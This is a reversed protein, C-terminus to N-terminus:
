STALAAKLAKATEPGVKGDCLQLNKQKQFALVAAATNKGYIGDAVDTQGPAPRIPFDLLPLLLQVAEIQKQGALAGAGDKMMPSTVRLIPTGTIPFNDPRFSADFADRGAKRVDARAKQLAKRANKVAESDGNSEARELRAKALAARKEVMNLKDRAKKREARAAKSAKAIRKADRAGTQFLNQFFEGLASFFGGFNDETQVAYALTAPDDAGMRAARRHFHRILAQRGPTVGKYSALYSDETFAEPPTAVLDDAADSADSEEERRALEARAARRVIKKRLPDRAIRQLKKTPISKMRALLAAVRGSAGFDVYQDLTAEEAADMEVQLDEASAVSDAAAGMRAKHRRLPPVVHHLRARRAAEIKKRNALRASTLARGVRSACEAGFVSDLDAGYLDSAAHVFELTSADEAGMADEGNLTGSSSYLQSLLKNMLDERQSASLGEEYSKRQMERRESESYYGLGDAAHTSRVSALVNGELRAAEGEEESAAETGMRALDHYGNVSARAAAARLRRARARRIAAQGLVEQAGEAFALADPNGQDAKKALVRVAVLDRAAGIRAIDEPSSDTVLYSLLDASM